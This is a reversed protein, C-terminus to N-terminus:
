APSQLESTHEESRIQGRTKAALPLSKLWEAMALPQVDVLITSACRPKIHKNLYSRYGAATSYSLGDTIVIEGPKQELIEELREEQAFREIVLGLTPKNHGRYADAGNIQLLVEQLHILAKTETPFELISLTIQRQPSGPEAHNRYRYEWVDAGTKRSM